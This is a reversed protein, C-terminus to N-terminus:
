AAVFVIRKIITPDTANPDPSAHGFQIATIATTGPATYDFTTETAAPPTAPPQARVTGDAEQVLLQYAGGKTLYTLQVRRVPAAFVARIPLSNCLSTGAPRASTLFAGYQSTKRLALGTADACDPGAHELNVSLTVGSAAWLTGPVPRDQPPQGDPPQAPDLVVSGPPMVAASPAKGAPSSASASAAPQASTPTLGPIVIPPGPPLGAQSQQPNPKNDAANRVLAGALTAGALVAVAVAIGIFRVPGRPIRPKQV